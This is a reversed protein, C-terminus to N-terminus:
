LARGASSYGLENVIDHDEKPSSGSTCRQEDDERHEARRPPQSWRSRPRGSVSPLDLRRATVAGRCGLRRATLPLPESCADQASGVM